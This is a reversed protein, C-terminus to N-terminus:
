QSQLVSMYCEILRQKEDSLLDFAVAVNKACNSVSSERGLLYDISVDFYDAIKIVKDMGPSSDKWKRITGNGLQLERELRTVTTRKSLCLTQIKESLLFIVEKIIILGFANVNL